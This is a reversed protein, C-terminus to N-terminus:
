LGSGDTDEERMEKELSGRYYPKFSTVMALSLSTPYGPNPLRM